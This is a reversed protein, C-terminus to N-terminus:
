VLDKAYVRTTFEYGQAEFALQYSNPISYGTPELCYVAGRDRAWTEFAQFLQYFNEDTQFETDLYIYHIQATISGSHPVSTIAGSVFGKVQYFEDRFVQWNCYNYISYQRVIESWCEEDYDDCAFADAWAEGLAIVQDITDVSCTEIKAM